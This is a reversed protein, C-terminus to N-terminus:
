AATDVKILEKTISYRYESQRRGTSVSDIVWQPKVVHIKNVCRGALMTQTKSASLCRSTVIHTCGSQTQLVQGGAVTILRKIEIDTTDELYGDIYIRAHQMTLNNKCPMQKALKKERDRLYLCRNVREEAVQHGTATSVVKDARDATDSHTIPNSTDSLTRLLFKTAAATSDKIQMQYPHMRHAKMSKNHSLPRAVVPFYQDITKM